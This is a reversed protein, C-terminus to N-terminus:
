KMYTTILSAGIEEQCLLHCIEERGIYEPFAFDMIKEEIDITIQAGISMLKTYKGLFVLDDPLGDLQLDACCDGERAPKAVPPKPKVASHKSTGSKQNGSSKSPGLSQKLM